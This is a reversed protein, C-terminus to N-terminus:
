VYVKMRYAWDRKEIESGIENNTSSNNQNGLNIVVVIAIVSIFVKAITLRLSYPCFSCLCGKYLFGEDDRLFVVFPNV